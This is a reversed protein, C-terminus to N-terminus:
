YTKMNEDFTYKSIIKYISKYNAAIEFNYQNNNSDRRALFYKGCKLKGIAYYTEKLSRNRDYSNIYCGCFKISECNNKLNALYSSSIITNKINEGESLNLISYTVNSVSKIRDFIYDVRKQSYLYEYFITIINNIIYDKVLDHISLYLM